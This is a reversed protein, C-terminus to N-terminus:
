SQARGAYDQPEQTNGSQYQNWYAIWWKRFPLYEAFYNKHISNPLTDIASAYDFKVAELNTVIPHNNASSSLPSYLWPVQQQTDNGDGSALPYPPGCLRRKVLDPNIRVGYKFFFDNLNLDGWPWQM